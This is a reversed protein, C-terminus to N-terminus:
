VEFDCAVLMHLQNGPSSELCRFSTLLRKTMVSFIWLRSFKPLREFYMLYSSTDLLLFLWWSLISLVLFCCGHFFSNFHDIELILLFSAFYPLLPGWHLKVRTVLIDCCFWTASFLEEWSLLCRTWVKTRILELSVFTNLLWGLIRNLVFCRWNLHTGIMGIGIKFVVM